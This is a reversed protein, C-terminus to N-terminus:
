NSAPERLRKIRDRVDRYNFDARAISSYHAMAGKADGKRELSLGLMYQLEKGTEDNPMEHKDLAQKFTDAAEDFFSSNYFCQGMRLLSRAQNKPDNASVQFVGIADEFQGARYLAEGYQVRISMDTPYADVREKMVKLEFATFKQQLEKHDAAAKNAIAPDPNKTERELHALRRKAQRIRIAYFRDQYRFDKTREFQAQLLNLAEKEEAPVGKELLLDVLAFLKAAINPNQDYERRAYRIANERQEDTRVVREQELLEETKDKNALGERFDVEQRFMAEYKGKEMTINAAISKLLREAELDDVGMARAIQACKMAQELAELKVKHGSTLQESATMWWDRLQMAKQGAKKETRLADVLRPTIWRLVRVYGLETANKGIAEMYTTNTPDKALLFVANLLNAKRDKGNFGKTFTEKLSPKKGGANMRQLSLETLPDYAEAIAEPWFGLGTVYCEIAYDYNRTDAVTTGRDFWAKARKRLEEPYDFEGTASVSHDTGPTPMKDPTTSM